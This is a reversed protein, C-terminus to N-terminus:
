DSRSAEGPFLQPATRGSSSRVILIPELVFHRPTRSLDRQAIHRLLEDLCKKGVLDFDQLVSTLAPEYFASEPTSDFGVVSVEQPVRRGQQRLAQLVGLAMQDNGALVATFLEGAQMACQAANFGGASTWDGRYLPLAELGCQQLAQLYGQHRLEADIWLSPGGIHLIRRHGLDILHRTAAASGEQHDISVTTAPVDTTANVLVVPFTMDLHQVLEATHFPIVLILGCIELQGLQRISQVIDPVALESQTSVIVEYGRARARQQVAQVINAPGYQHMGYVLMGLRRSPSTPM